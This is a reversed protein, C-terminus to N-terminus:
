VGHAYMKHEIGDMRCGFGVLWMVIFEWTCKNGKIKIMQYIISVRWRALWAAMNMRNSALPSYLIFIFCVSLRVRVHKQKMEAILYFKDYNAIPCVPVFDCVYTHSPVYSGQGVVSWTVLRRHWARNSGYSASLYQILCITREAHFSPFLPLPVSFIFISIM